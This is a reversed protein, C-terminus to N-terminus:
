KDETIKYAWKYGLTSKIKGRACRSIEKRGCGTERAAEHISIFEKILAGDKAYQCVPSSMKSKSEDTWNRKKNAEAIANRASEDWVRQKNLEIMHPKKRGTQAISMKNITEDSHTTRLRGGSTLNYLPIKAEKYQAIYFIEYEDLVDQTADNPLQHLFSASFSEWGYKLVAELLKRPMYGAVAKYNSLRRRVDKSQGIYVTNDPSTIAYIGGKYINNNIM